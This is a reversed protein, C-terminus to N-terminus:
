CSDQVAMSESHVTELFKGWKTHIQETGWSLEGWSDLQFVSGSIHIQVSEEHAAGILIQMYTGQNRHSGM